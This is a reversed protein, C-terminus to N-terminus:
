ILHKWTRRKRVDCITTPSLSLRAALEVGSEKSTRIERVLDETLRAMGHSEGKNTKPRARGKAWMDNCNDSQTGLFLHTPNVCAPNDCRHLVFLGNPIEGKMLRWAARHTLEIRGDASRWQGHWGAQNRSGTWNWCEDPEKVDVRKLFREYETLGHHQVQIPKLTKGAKFQEYHAPCYGLSRAKRDCGDFKCM